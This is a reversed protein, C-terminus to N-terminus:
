RFVAEGVKTGFRHLDVQRVKSDWKGEFMFRLKGPMVGEESVSFLECVGWGVEREQIQIEIPYEVMSCLRKKGWEELRSVIDNDRSELPIAALPSFPALSLSGFRFDCSMECYVTPQESFFLFGHTVDHTLLIPGHDSITQSQDLGAWKRGSRALRIWAACARTRLHVDEGIGAFPL